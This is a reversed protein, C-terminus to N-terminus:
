CMSPTDNTPETSRWTDTARWRSCEPGALMRCARCSLAPSEHGDQIRRAADARRERQGDAVCGDAKILARSRSNRHTQRLAPAEAPGSAVSAGLHTTRDDIGVDLHIESPACGGAM